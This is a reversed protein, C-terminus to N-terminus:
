GYLHPIRHGHRQLNRQTGGTPPPDTPQDGGGGGGDGGGDGPPGDTPPVPNTPGTPPPSVPRSGTPHPRPNVPVTTSRGGGGTYVSPAGFSKPELDLVQDAQVMYSRWIRAPLDGGYSSYGPISLPKNDSRFIGVSATLQPIFGNFWLQKGDSTTGTKGAANRDPLGANTGTGADVVKQMAYTADRAVTTSFARKGPETVKRTKSGPATVSRIVHPAHYVGESAFTAYGAAQQEVSVDAVGLPLTAADKHPELQAAPIGAKEAMSVVKGLGVKQGLNVYATNISDQTATVLNVMGFNENEDNHLAVGAFTQPSSGDVYTNLSEGDDLAAALVYPKFGSGAQVKADFANNFQQDIYDKGGYFANVEGNDPDISVLGTLIKKSTGTPMNQKVAQRAAAMLDKDFTTRVKLGGMNIQNDTYGMRRLEAKALSVMYGKDGAYISKQKQKAPTPFKMTAVQQQSIAGMQVMGSVVYQWRSRMYSQAGPITLDGAYTPVQIAAALYAGEAPTLQQVDKGYYAQAASEIGYADRGFYITNLYQQLIWDKDKERSVKLAIMIEKLKRSATRQQSLGSYYNRVMQQTITSGGQMSGGTLTAWVARASGKVSVGSDSYFSRNEASIVADRVQPPVVKLDVPRRDFDGTRAIVTKGDSYYFVSQQAKATPQASSPVPTMLYVVVFGIIPLLVLVGLVYAARRAYKIRRDQPKKTKKGSKGPKGPTGKSSAAALRVGQSPEKAEDAKDDEPPIIVPKTVDAPAPEDASHTGPEDTSGPSLPDDDAGGSPPTKAATTGDDKEGDDALEREHTDDHLDDEGREGDPREDDADSAGAATAPGREGAPTEEAAPGPDGPASDEPAPDGPASDSVPTEDAADQPGADNDADDTVEDDRAVVDDEDPERRSGDGGASLNADGNNVPKDSM